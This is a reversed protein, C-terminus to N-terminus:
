NGGYIICYGDGGAGGNGPTFGTRCSGGGGGGGGAGGAGGAGGNVTQNSSGGGGGAAFGGPAGAATVGASSTAGGAGLASNGRAGGGGGNILVNGNTESGGAGGGAPPLHTSFGNQVSPLSVGGGSGGQFISNPSGGVGAPLNGGTAATLSTGLIGALGGSGGTATLYSGFTSNGGAAGATPLSGGVGGAGGTGITILISAGNPGLESSLFRRPAHGGGAGGGGGTKNTNIAGSIGGGGGGGAGFLEVAFSQYGSPKIFTETSSITKTLPVQVYGNLNTGDSMILLEEGPYVPRTAQGNITEAGFPDLTITGTGANVFYCFWGNTLIAASDFTQTWTGSVAVIAASLDAAVLQTNSNRFRQIITDGSIRQWDSTNTAPDATLTGGVVKKRYTHADTPSYAATYQPYNTGSVWLVAGAAAVAAQASNAALTAQTTAIGAQTTATTAATSATTQKDTVDTQLINAESVFGPLAAVLADAKTVFVSPNDTRQPAPPLPTM